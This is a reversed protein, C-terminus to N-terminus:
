DTVAPGTWFLLWDRDPALLAQGSAVKSRGIWVSSPCPAVLCGARAEADPASTEIRMALWSGPMWAPLRGRDEASPTVVRFEYLDQNRALRAHTGAHAFAVGCPRQLMHVLRWLPDNKTVTVDRLLAGPIRLLGGPPRTGTLELYGCILGRPVWRAPPYRDIVVATAVLGLLVALLSAAVVLLAFRARRLGRRTGREVGRAPTAPIM